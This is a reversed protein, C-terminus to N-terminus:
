LPGAVAHLVDVKEEDAADVANDQLLKKVKIPLGSRASELAAIGTLASLAGALAGARQGLPDSEGPAFLMRQLAPDGGFHGGAQHEVRIREALGFNQALLIEDADGTDWAQREFQRIELRGRTGNFALHYGEVPM